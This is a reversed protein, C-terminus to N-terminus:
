VLNVIIVFTINIFIYLCFDRLLINLYFLLLFLLLIELIIIIFIFIVMLEGVVCVIFYTGIRLLVSLDLTLFVLRFRHSKSNVM